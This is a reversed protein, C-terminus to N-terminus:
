EHERVGQIRGSLLVMFEIRRSEAEAVTVGKEYRAGRAYGRKLAAEFDPDSLGRFVRTIRLAAKEREGIKYNEFESM